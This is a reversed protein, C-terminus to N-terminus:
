FLFKEHIVHFTVFKQYFIGESHFYLVSYLCIFVLFHNLKTVKEYAEYKSCKLIYSCGHECYLFFFTYRRRRAYNLRTVRIKEVAQYLIYCHRNQSINGCEGECWKRMSKELQLLLICKLFLDDFFFDNKRVFTSITVIRHVDPLDLFIYNELFVM